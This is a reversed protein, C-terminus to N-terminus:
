LRLDLKKVKQEKKLNDLKAFPSSGDPLRIDPALEQLPLLAFLRKTLHPHPIILKPHTFSLDNYLLIDIDINRPGWRFPTQRGMKEEIAKVLELLQLPPFDTEVKLALNLFDGQKTYGWPASVYVSSLGKITLGAEELLAIAKRLNAM